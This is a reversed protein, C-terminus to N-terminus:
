PRTAPGMLKRDVIREILSFPALAAMAARVRAWPGVPYRFRPNPETLLRVVLDSVEAPDRATRDVEAQFRADLRAAVRAITPTPGDANRTVHRNRKFIDTRYAGPEVLIVHVGEHRLEHHLAESMGELAFKSAAYVGLGPLGMRGSMSSIQIVRGRARRLLPTAARTVAWTGVINVDLVARLEDEDVQEQLGGLARGANNVLADLHGHEGAIRAVAADRDAASTIDLQLVTLPLERAEDALSGATALDRVGAYVTHGVRAAALAILRGFGSRCGTVLVVSM